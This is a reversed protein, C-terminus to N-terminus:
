TLAVPVAAASHRRARSSKKNKRIDVWKSRKAKQLSTKRPARLFCKFQHFVRVVYGVKVAFAIGQLLNTESPVLDDRRYQASRQIILVFQM